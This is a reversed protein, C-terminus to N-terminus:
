YYHDAGILVDVEVSGRPYSDALTLGQLHSNKHFDMQVPWLPNCIKSISLAEIEVKSDGKIPSLTFKVRQFRKTESTEGGLTTVSLLESPGQLDLAEAINKRIYSCESGSDLLVRVTMEKGKVILRALATQLLTERM